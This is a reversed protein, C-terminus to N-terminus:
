NNVHTYSNSPFSPFYGEFTGEEVMEAEPKIVVEAGVRVVVVLLGSVVLRVVLLLAPIVVAVLGVVSSVTGLLSSGSILGEIGFTVLASTM